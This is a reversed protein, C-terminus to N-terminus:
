ESDETTSLQMSLGEILDEVTFSDDFTDFELITALINGLGDLYLKAYEEADNAKLRYGYHMSAATHPLKALASIIIDGNKNFVCIQASIHTVATNGTGIAGEFFYGHTIQQMITVAFEANNQACINAIESKIAANPRTFFDLRPTTRDFNYVAQVTEANYAKQWTTSIIANFVKLTENLDAANAEDFRKASNNYRVVSAIGAGVQLVGLLGGSRGGEQRSAGDREVMRINYIVAKKGQLTGEAVPQTTIRYPGPPPAAVCGMVVLIVLSVATIVYPMRKKNM